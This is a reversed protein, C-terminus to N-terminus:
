RGPVRESQPAMPVGMSDPLMVPRTERGVAFLREVLPYPLQRRELNAVGAHHLMERPLLQGASDLLDIRYGRIWGGVPWRFRMREEAPHHSYLTAAPIEVPDVTVVVERRKSDVRVRVDSAFDEASLSACLVVSAGTVAVQGLTTHKM